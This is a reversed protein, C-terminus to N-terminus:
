PSIDIDTGAAHLAERANPGCLCVNAWQSTVRVIYVDLEPWELTLLRELHMQTHDASGTGCFMWYRNADLRFTVGDDMLRGDERLMLGFRGMGVRLNAWRNTYVRELFEVVDAGQLEFKGLPSGDYIGLSRRCAQVERKIAAAMDEGDVPFYSPRRYAAGAEFMRAGADEIWDTIATRRSPLVLEGVEHATIAGFAVPTYPPRYTTTGVQGPQQELADSLIGVTNTNGLKGQDTGMGATTYRKVHEVSVLNERVALDIDANTVDNQFDVFSKRNHSDPLQWVAEIAYRPSADVNWTETALADTTIGPSGADALSQVAALAADRGSELCALLDFEGCAAGVSQELQVPEGPVFSAIEPAYTPRAGTQSALHLTPNWGGSMLVLDCEVREGAHGALADPISNIYVARVQKHGDVRTITSHRFVPAETRTSAASDTDPESRVDVIARIQLGLQELEAITASTSTNNSLVVASRGAMVGYRSAYRLASHAQMVGPKDNDPFVLPRETAGTALIVRAARVKWLREFVAGPTVARPSPLGAPDGTPLCRELLTIFNYEYYGTATTNQLHRVNPLAALESTVQQVWQTAPENNINQQVDLLQGGPDPNEDVLLVQAGSRAAHLASSLGAPGAGIVALDCHHFRKEYRHEPAQTPATGLGAMRRIFRGYVNWGLGGM